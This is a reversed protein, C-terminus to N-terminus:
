KRDDSGIQDARQHTFVSGAGERMYNGASTLGAGASHIAGNAAVPVYSTAKSIYTEEKNGPRKPPIPPIDSLMGQQPFPPLKREKKGELRSDLGEIKKDEKFRKHDMQQTTNGRINSHGYNKFEMETRPDMPHSPDQYKQKHSNETIYSSSSSSSPPPPPPPPPISRGKTLDALSAYTKIGSM